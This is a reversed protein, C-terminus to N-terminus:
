GPVVWEGLLERPDEVDLGLRIVPEFGDEGLAQAVSYNNPNRFVKYAPVCMLTVLYLAKKLGQSRM